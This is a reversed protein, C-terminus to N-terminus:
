PRTSVINIQSKYRGIRVANNTITKMFVCIPKSVLECLVGNGVVMFLSTM